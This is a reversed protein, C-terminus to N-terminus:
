AIERPTRQTRSKTQKPQTPLKTPTPKQTIATTQKNRARGTDTASAVHMAEANDRFFPQIVKKGRQIPKLDRKSLATSDVAEKAGKADRASKDKVPHPAHNEPLKFGAIEGRKFAQDLRESVARQIQEREGLAYGKKETIANVIENVTGPVPILAPSKNNNLEARQREMELQIRQDNASLEYGNVVIGKETAQRWVERKFVSDGSVTFTKWGKAQALEVMSTITILDSRETTLKNGHDSFALQGTRERSYFESGIQMHRRAVSEPIVNTNSTKQNADNVPDPSNPSAGMKFNPDSKHLVALRDFAELRRPIKKSDSDHIPERGLEISNM